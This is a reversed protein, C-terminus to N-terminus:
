RASDAHASGVGNTEQEASMAFATAVLDATKQLRATDRASFTAGGLRPGLALKGM